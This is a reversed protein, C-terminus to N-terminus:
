LKGAPDWREKALDSTGATSTDYVDEPKLAEVHGDFMMFNAVEGPHRYAVQRVGTNTSATDGNSAWSAPNAWGYGMNGKTNMGDMFFIKDSPGKVQAARMGVGEHTISPGYGLSFQANSPPDGGYSVTEINMSYTLSVHDTGGGITATKALVAESCLYDTAWGTGQYDNTSTDETQGLQLNEVFNSNEIWRRGNMGNASKSSSGVIFPTHDGKHEAVYIGDAIGLQRLSNSCSMQRASQRASSLAPLLIAILLAIISIVVLLEILTFGRKKAQILHFLTVAPRTM